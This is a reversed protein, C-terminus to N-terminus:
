PFYYQSLFRPLLSAIYIISAALMVFCSFLAIAAANWRALPVSAPWFM